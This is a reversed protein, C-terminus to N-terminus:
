RVADMEVAPLTCSRIEAGCAIPSLDRTLCIRIDKMRQKDCTVAINRQDLAPNSELFADRIVKPAVRLPQDVRAFLPPVTIAAYAKRLLAFYAEATMGTCRGHARWEHIALDASGMIDAMAAAARRSPDPQASACDSPYGGTAFQPWLGHLTFTQGHQGCQDAGRSDGTEACWNPSWSLTLLYYDFGTAAAGGGPGHSKPELWLVMLPGALLVIVAALILRRM